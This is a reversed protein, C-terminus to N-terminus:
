EALHINMQDKMSHNKKNNNIQNIIMILKM